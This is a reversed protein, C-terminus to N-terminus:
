VKQEGLLQMLVPGELFQTSVVIRGVYSKGQAASNGTLTLGMILVKANMTHPM